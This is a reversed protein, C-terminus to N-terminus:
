ALSFKLLAGEELFVMQILMDLAPAGVVPAPWAPLVKVGAGGGVGPAAAGVVDAVM